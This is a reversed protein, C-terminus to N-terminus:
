KIENKRKRLLILTTSLICFLVLGISFYMEANSNIINNGTWGGKVYHVCEVWSNVNIINGESDYLAIAEYNLDNSFVYTADNGPNVYEVGAPKEGCNNEIEKNSIEM